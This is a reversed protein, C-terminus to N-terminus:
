LVAHNFFEISPLQTLLAALKDNTKRYVYGGLLVSTLLSGFVLFVYVAGLYFGPDTLAHDVTEGATHGLNFIRITAAILVQLPTGPHTIDVPVHGKIILLANFYYNFCPDGFQWFPGSAWRSLFSLFLTILPLIFIFSSRRSTLDKILM